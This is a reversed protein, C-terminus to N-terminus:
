WKGGDPNGWLYGFNKCPFKLNKHLEHMLLTHTHQVFVSSQPWNWPLIRGSWLPMGAVKSPLLWGLLIRSYKWIRWFVNAQLGENLRERSPRLETFVFWHVSPTLAESQGATKRAHDLFPSQIFSREHTTQHGRGSSKSVSGKLLSIAPSWSM